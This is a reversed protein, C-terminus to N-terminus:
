WPSGAHCYLWKHVDCVSGLISTSKVENSLRLDCPWWVEVTAKLWHKCDPVSTQLCELVDGHLGLMATCGNVYM